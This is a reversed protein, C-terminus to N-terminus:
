ARGPRKKKSHLRLAEVADERVSPDSDALATEIQGVHKIGGGKGLPSSPPAFPNGPAASKWCSVSFTSRRRRQRAKRGASAVAFLRVEEDQQSDGALKLLAPVGAKYNTDGMARAADRRIMKEPSGLLEQLAVGARPDNSDGIAILISRVEEPTTSKQRYLGILGPVALNGM